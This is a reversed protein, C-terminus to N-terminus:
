SSLKRLERLGHRAYLGTATWTLALGCLLLVVAIPRLGIMAFFPSAMTPTVGIRGAWNIEIDVGHALGYRSLGLMLLERAVALVIAWRPMLNFHWCVAMSCVILVRDVLPDLL